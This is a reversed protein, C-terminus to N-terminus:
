EPITWNTSSGTAWAMISSLGKYFEMELPARAQSGGVIVAGCRRRASFWEVAVADSGALLRRLSPTNKNEAPTAM